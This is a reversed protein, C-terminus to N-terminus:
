KFLENNVIEALQVAAVANEAFPQWVDANCAKIFANHLNEMADPSKGNSNHFDICVVEEDFADLGRIFRMDADSNYATTFTCNKSGIRAKVVISDHKGIHCGLLEFDRSFDRQGLNFALEFGHILIDFTLNDVTNKHPLLMTFDINPVHYLEPLARRYDPNFGYNHGTMFVVNYERSLRYLTQAEKYTLCIPKELLIHQQNEIATKAIEYHTNSPTAIILADYVNLPLRAIHSQEDYISIEIFDGSYLSEPNVTDDRSKLKNVHKLGINGLGGVVCISNIV